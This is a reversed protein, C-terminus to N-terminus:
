VCVGVCALVCVHVCGRELLKQDTPGLVGTINM